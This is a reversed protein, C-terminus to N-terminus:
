GLRGTGYSAIVQMVEKLPLAHRTHGDRGTTTEAKFISNLVAEETCEVVAPFLWEMVTDEDSIATRPATVSAPTHAVRNTTSFAIVFEGSRPGLVSGTRVLGGVARKCLRGLQRSTLPADTAIVIMISGSESERDQTLDPPLVHRGIPVGGITLQLPMGFNSQVLAGVNFGGSEKPVLRSATGIGGKWGYCSTGTGAGVGGEAVPAGSPSNVAAEIADWVHEQRVHRGCLDNLYSDNTEGVVVNLSRSRDEIGVQSDERIAYAFLADAVLGVNFTNTLAIPSEIVGVERIEEFGVVKGHGNIAHVAACVKEHLLNGDHPLVVTVGTRIPGCGANLEGDGANITTHGVRVGPVDTIANEAGPDLMGDWELIERLRPRRSM